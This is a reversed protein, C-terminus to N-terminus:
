FDAGHDKELCAAIEQPTPMRKLAIRDDHVTILGQREFADLWGRMPWTGWSRKFTCANAVISALHNLPPDYSAHHQHFALAPASSLPTGRAHARYSFDTDEAGYGRYREDFGGLSDFVAKRCAFNLSWFLNYPVPEGAIRHAHLPHPRADDNSRCAGQGPGDARPPLYRVEGQHIADPHRRLSAMYDSVLQPDPICDVDLFVLQDGRAAAAAANRAAALPLFNEDAMERAVIPFHRSHRQVAPENMHVIVVEHPPVDGRELGALLNELHRARGHVLTLVSIM